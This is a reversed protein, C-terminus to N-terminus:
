KLTRLYTFLDTVQESSLHDILGEPMLSSKTVKHQAIQGRPVVQLATGVPQISLASKTEKVLSGSIKSGNKLILDHRYYGSEMQANPTLINHLLAETSMAGAGSLDPGIVGGANGVKHCALCTAFLIKGKASDGNRNALTLFKQFKEKAAKAAEPNVLKPTDDVLTVSAQGGLKLNPSAADFYHVLGEPQSGAYSTQFDDRIERATRERNWIRYERIQMTSGGPVISQGVKLNALPGTFPRSKAPDLAGDLYIKFVGNKARTIACHTWLNATMPRSAVIRDGGANSGAYLRLTNGFFNIDPGAPPSGLLSDFNDIGPALKVWCEVTFPGTLTVPIDISDSDNGTFNIVPQLLGPTNKLLKKVYPHDAGLLVVISGLSDATLGKFQGIAAAKALALTKEKQSTLGHIALQRLDGPLKDWDKAVLSVVVPDPLGALAILAERRLGPNSSRYYKEFLPRNSSGLERLATLGLQQDEAALKPQALWKTIIP